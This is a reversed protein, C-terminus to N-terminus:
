IEGGKGKGEVGEGGRAEWVKGERGKGGVGKEGGGGQLYDSSHLCIWILKRSFRYTCNGRCWDGKECWVDQKTGRGNLCASM